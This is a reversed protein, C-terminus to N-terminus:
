ARPCRTPSALRAEYYKRKTWTAMLVRGQEDWRLAPNTRLIPVLQRYVHSQEPYQAIRVAEAYVAWPDKPPPATACGTALVLALVWPFRSM